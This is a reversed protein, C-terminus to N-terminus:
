NKRGRARLREEQRQRKKREQPTINAIRVNDIGAQRCLAKIDQPELDMWQGERLYSPFFIPGFRVRKLRNVEVGQSEWLRRVERNRGEMLAVTFWRNAGNAEGPVIDSFKAMGDDLLVGDRLRKLGDEDVDGHVRVLYERDMNSSPHMLKNALEGDNTFLLLGSTNIDLRGVSVWREGSLKPLREFVTPRGEPDNRTCIEGLPKNYLLVRLRSDASKRAFPKGDVQINDEPAVRDGLTAPQGNVMVRGDAIWQEMARRSGLGGAALVKQLKETVVGESM